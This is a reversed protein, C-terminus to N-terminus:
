LIEEIFYLRYSRRIKIIPINCQNSMKINLPVWIGRLHYAETRWYLYKSFTAYYLIINFMLIYIMDYRIMDCRMADCRMTDYIMDYWIMLWIMYWLMYIMYWIMNYTMDYWIDHWIINMYANEIMILTPEHFTDRPYSAVVFLKSSSPQQYLHYPFTEQWKNWNLLTSLM